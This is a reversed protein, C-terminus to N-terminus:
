FLLYFIYGCVDCVAEGGFDRNCMWMLKTGIVM